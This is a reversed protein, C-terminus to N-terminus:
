SRAFLAAQLALILTFLVLAAILMGAAVLIRLWLRQSQTTEVVRDLQAEVRYWFHFFLLTGSIYALIKVPWMQTEVGLVYVGATVLIWEAWKFWAEAYSGRKVGILFDFFLDSIARKRPSPTPETM